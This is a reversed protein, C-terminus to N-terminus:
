KSAPVDVWWTSKPPRGLLEWLRASADTLWFYGTDSSSSPVPAFRLWGARVLRDLVRQGDDITQEDHAVKRASVKRGPYILVIRGRSADHSDRKGPRHGFVHSGRVASAVDLVNVEFPTLSAFLEFKRKRADNIRLLVPLAVLM